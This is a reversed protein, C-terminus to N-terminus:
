VAEKQQRVKETLLPLLDFLDVTAGFNAINFIPAVPDTNIAIIMESDMIAETHEPAGSIGAALYLKPHVRKGSKGVLRSNPLWGQDVVPRSACVVGGIAEALEEAMFLNDKNQIGRGISILINQKSIDVDEAEPMIYRLFQVGAKEPVALEMKVSEVPSTSRGQDAKFAGPVMTAMCCPSPLQGQALIKGGCIQSTFIVESGEAILDLCSSVLPMNLKMSIGAAIDAGISTEGLLVLRPQHEQILSILAQQYVQPKFDAYDPHSAFWVQNALLNKGLTEPKDALLLAIVKGGTTKALKNAAALMIYTIECVEGQLHEVLVFIIQNM